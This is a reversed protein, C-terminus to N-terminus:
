GFKLITTLDAASFVNPIVSNLVDIKGNFKLYNAFVAAAMKQPNGGTIFTADAVQGNTFHGLQFSSTKTRGAPDYTLMYACGAPGNDSQWPAVRSQSDPSDVAGDSTVFVFVKKNLAAATALVRGVLVGAENDKQDGTTRTGNHYDYGGLELSAVSGVGNLVSVVASGMVVSQNNAATAATVGWITQVAATPSRRVDTRTALDSNAVLTQNKGTACYVLDGLAKGGSLNAVQRAQSTSMDKILKFLKEKEVASLQDLAGTAAMAGAIDNYSRVVLPVPPRVYAFDAGIGTVSDRTGMVPLAEGVLGSRAIMGSVGFQNAGSDDRSQANVGVFASNALVTANAASRVGALFNGSGTTSQYFPVNGFERVIPMQNNGMGMRSYSSILEGNANHPIFNAALLGGGSLHIHV